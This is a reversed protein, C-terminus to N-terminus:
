KASVKMIESQFAEGSHMARWLHFAAREGLKRLVKFWNYDPTRIKLEPYKKQFEFAYPVPDLLLTIKKLEPAVRCLETLYSFIKGDAVLCDPRDKLVAHIGPVGGDLRACHHALVYRREASALSACFADFTPGESGFYATRRCGANRVCGARLVGIQAFDAEEASQEFVRRM